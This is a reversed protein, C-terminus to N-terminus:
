KAAPWLRRGEHDRKNMQVPKGGAKLSRAGETSQVLAFDGKRLTFGDEGNSEQDRPYRAM